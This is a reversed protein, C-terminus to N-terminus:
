NLKIILDVRRNKRRGEDISNDAIPKDAGFGKYSLKDTGGKSKLYEAAARSRNMSLDLNYKAEGTSDTHGEVIVERDPYRSKIIGLATDLIKRSESNLEFSNVDFLVEGIRLVLGRKETDIKIGSDKPLSKEIDKRAREKEDDNVAPYVKPRSEINMKFEISGFAGREGAFVFMINYREKMEGPSNGKLDWEIIGSSQGFIKVPYDGPYKGGTLDKDIIFHYNILATERGDSKKVSLLTYSAELNLNLPVSFDRLLLNVPATWTDGPHIDQAPFTPLHRMNPLMYKKDVHMRGTREIRFDSSYEEMLLFVADDLDKRFISFMAKVASSGEERGTCTLNIINRENYVRTLKSNILYKIDATRVIEVRDSINMEWKLSVASASAPFCICFALSIYLIPKM